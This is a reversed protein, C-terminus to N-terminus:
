SLRFRRKVRRLVAKVLLGVLNHRHLLEHKHLFDTLRLCDRLWGRPIMHFGILLLAHERLLDKMDSGCERWPTVQHKVVFRDLVESYLSLGERFQDHSLDSYQGTWLSRFANMESDSLKRDSIYSQIQQRSIQQAIEVQLTRKSTTISGSHIRYHLLVEDVGCMKCTLAIRSFFDYDQAYPLSEDYQGVASFVIERNWMSSPHCICNDFLLKWKVLLGNTPLPTAERKAGTSDIESVRSYTLTANTTQLRETQVAFRSPECIDDADMRAIYLGKCLTIAKNLCKTLGQNQDNRIVRLRKDTYSHLIAATNDISADDIVIFEFNRFSQGLVSDVAKRLYVEGNYVAMVVSVVPAQVDDEGRSDKM